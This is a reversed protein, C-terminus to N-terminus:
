TYCIVGNNLQFEKLFSIIQNFGFESYRWTLFSILVFFYFSSCPLAWNHNYLPTFQSSPKWPIDRWKEALALITWNEWEKATLNVGLTGVAEWNVLWVAVILRPSFMNVSWKLPSWCSKRRNPPISSVLTSTVASFQLSTFAKGREHVPEVWHKLNLVSQLIYFVHM